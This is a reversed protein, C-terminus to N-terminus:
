RKEKTVLNAAGLQDEPGWQGWSKTQQFLQDFEVANRPVRDGSSRVSTTQELEADGDHAHAVLPIWVSLTLVCLACMFKKIKLRM